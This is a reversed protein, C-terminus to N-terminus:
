EPDGESLKEAHFIEAFEEDSVNESSPSPFFPNAASSTTKASPGNAADPNQEGKVRLELGTVTKLVTEVPERHKELLTVHAPYLLGVRFTKGSIGLPKGDKLFGRVNPKVKKLVQDWVDDLGGEISEDPSAYDEPGIEPAPADKQAAPAKGAKAKSPLFDGTGDPESPDPPPAIPGDASKEVGELPPEAPAPAARTSRPATAPRTAPATAAAAPAAGLVSDGEAMGGGNAIRLLTLELLLRHDSIWRMQSEARHIQDLASMLLPAPIRDAQERYRAAAEPYLGAADEAGSRVWLLDRLHAGLTALLQRPEKGESMLSEVERFLVSADGSALADTLRFLANEEVSGLVANVAELDVREPSYASVQELLSLADRWGGAAARAIAGLAEPEHAMGEREAVYRLRDTLDKVTGRRFDFRQTRSVITKPVRHTETTALVFIVNPPPEELTKLLAQFADASLQHVEDIIYFKFREQASARGVQERLLKIDDIGRNSAADIEVVDLSHGERIRICADCADCPDSTPGNECNMAKALVRATTTKATGRPGCFLYAHAVHDQRIANQLTRTVHQQGMIDDFTQPRYKRYLALYAM